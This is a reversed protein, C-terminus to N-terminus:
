KIENLAESESLELLSLVYYRPTATHRRKPATSKNQQQNM